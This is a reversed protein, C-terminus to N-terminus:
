RGTIQRWIRRQVNGPQLALVHLSVPDLILATLGNPRELSGPVKALRFLEAIQASEEAQALPSAQRDQPRQGRLNARAMPYFELQTAEQAVTASTIQLTRGDIARWALGLPELVLDLAQEWPRDVVACAIRTAPRALFEPPIEQSEDQAESAGAGALSEGLLASWDVLLVLGLQQEWYSFIEQLPTYRSYTFRAPEHLTAALVQMPPEVPLRALPYRSRPKLERVLRLRELFCLIQYQVRQSQVIHLTEGAIQLDGEGGANRWSTPAVLRRIWEALRRVGTEATVLDAIPYDIARRKEAGPWHIVVLPGTTRYDLHLPQLAKHMIEALSARESRVSVPAEASLAAMRLEEPGLQIPVNGLNSIMELFAHLPMREIEIAPFMQGLQKEAAPMSVASANAPDMRVVQTNLNESGRSSAGMEQDTRSGTPTPTEDPSLNAAPEASSEPSIGRNLIDESRESRFQRLSLMDLGEPDLDLPDFRPVQRQDASDVPKVFSENGTSTSPKASKVTTEPGV